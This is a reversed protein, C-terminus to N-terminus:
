WNSACANLNTNYAESGTDATVASSWSYVNTDFIREDAVKDECGGADLFPEIFDIERVCCLVEGQSLKKTVVDFGAIKNKLTREILYFFCFHFL